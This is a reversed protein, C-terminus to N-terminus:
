NIEVKQWKGNSLCCAEKYGAELATAVVIDLGLNIEGPAHADSSLTIPIKL